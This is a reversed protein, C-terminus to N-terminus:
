MPEDGHSKVHDLYNRLFQTLFYNADEVKCAVLEKKGDRVDQEIEELLKQATKLNLLIYDTNM